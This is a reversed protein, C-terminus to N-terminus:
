DSADLLISHLGARNLDDILGVIEQLPTKPAVRIVVTTEQGDPPEARPSIQERHIQVPESPDGWQIMGDPQLTVVHRQENEKAPSREIQFPVTLGLEIPFIEQPSGAFLFALGAPIALSTLAFRVALVPAPSNEELANLLRLRRGVDPRRVALRTLVQWDLEYTSALAAAPLWLFLLGATGGVLQIAMRMYFDAREPHGWEAEAPPQRFWDPAVVCFYGIILPVFLIRLDKAVAHPHRRLRFAILTLFTLSAAVPLSPDSSMASIGWLPDLYALLWERLDAASSAAEGLFERLVHASDFLFCIAILCPLGFWATLLFTEPWSFVAQFPPSPTPSRM